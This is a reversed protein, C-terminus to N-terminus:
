ASTYAHGGKGQPDYHYDGPERRTLNDRIQLSYGRCAGTQLACDLLGAHWGASEEWDDHDDKLTQTSVGFCYNGATGNMEGLRCGTKLSVSARRAMFGELPIALGKLKGPKTM